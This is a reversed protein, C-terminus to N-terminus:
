HSRKWRGPRTSWRTVSRFGSIKRGFLEPLIVLQTVRFRLFIWHLIGKIRQISQQGFRRFLHVHHVWKREFKCVVLAGSCSAPERQPPRGTGPVPIRDSQAASAIHAGDRVPIQRIGSTIRRLCCGSSFNWFILKKLNNKKIAARFM